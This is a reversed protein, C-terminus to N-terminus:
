KKRIIIKRATALKYRKGGMARYEGAIPVSFIVYENIMMRHESFRFDLLCASSGMMCTDWQSASDPAIDSLYKFLCPPPSNSIRGDSLRMDIKAEVQDVIGDQDLDSISIETSSIYSDKKGWEGPRDVPPLKETIDINNPRSVVSINEKGCSLSDYADLTETANKSYNNLENGLSSFAHANLPIISFLFLFFLSRM